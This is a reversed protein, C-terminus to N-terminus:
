IKITVNVNSSRIIIIGQQARIYTFDRFNAVSAAIVMRLSPNLEHFVTNM